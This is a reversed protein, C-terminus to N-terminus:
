RMSLFRKSRRTITSRQGYTRLSKYERLMLTPSAMMLLPGRMSKMQDRSRQLRVPTLRSSPLRKRLTDTIDVPGNGVLLADFQVGAAAVADNAAATTPDHNYGAPQDRITNIGLYQLASIVNQSQGYYANHSLRPSYQDRSKACLDFSGGPGSTFGFLKFHNRQQQRHMALDVARQGHSGFSHRRQLSGRQARRECQHWEGARM